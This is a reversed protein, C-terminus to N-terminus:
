WYRAGRQILLDVVEKHGTAAAWHLPAAVDAGRQILLDVVEKYGIMAAVHLLTRNDDARAAVDAGRQILLDVVEKHRRM